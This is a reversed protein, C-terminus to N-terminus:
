GFCLFQSKCLCPDSLSSFIPRCAHSKMKDFDSLTWKSRAGFLYQKNQLWFVFIPKPQSLSQTTCLSISIPGSGNWSLWFPANAKPVMQLTRTHKNQSWYAFNHGPFFLFMRPLQFNAQLWLKENWSPGLQGIAELVRYLPSEKAVFPQIFLSKLHLNDSSSPKGFAFPHRLCLIASPSPQESTLSVHASLRGAM